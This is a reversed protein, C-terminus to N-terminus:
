HEHHKDPVRAVEPKCPIASVECRKFLGGISATTCTYKIDRANAIDAYEEGWKFRVSQIWSKNAAKEAGSATIWESGRDVLAEKCDRHRDSDEDEDHKHSKASATAAIAVISILTIATRKFM